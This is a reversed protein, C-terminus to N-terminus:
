ATQRLPMSQVFGRLRRFIAGDQDICENIVDVTHRYAKLIRDIEPEKMAYSVGHESLILVGMQAMEQIFLSQLQQRTVYPHDHFRVQMLPAHGVLEIRDTLKKVGDRIKAGVEWLHSPVSKKELKKITALSAALSLTEGFFTGSYFAGQPPGICQMLEKKGVLASIPMGNGLAKGFCALDPTVRFFQQAGGLSYRFGTKIEDFILVINHKSCFERLFKLYTEDDTPEVIIAATKDVDMWDLCHHELRVSLSRIADPIGASQDDRVSASWDAWGHYGGVYVQDVGTYTRAIRIAATTVDTGTKGFRVMEACPILSSLKEALECELKTSLSFSMGASIQRRVAYDVDPDRYGLIVPLLASALDVYDHGDVDFVRAGDGHSLYLPAAGQPLFAVSKSLTQAGLPITKSARAYLSDSRGFERPPLSEGALGQYFRENRIGDKNIERIWETRNLINLIDTCSPPTIKGWRMAVEQCFLYDRETDLVWREKDMGPFPCILSESPFRDRNRIIYQTVCDRDTERTAEQWAAELARFTFCETDLGDPWTPPWNNSCYDAGTMQRLQIVQDVVNPDLFPCDCTLRLVVDAEYMKACQYFRDLVDTESGRFCIVNKGLCWGEIADDADLDSTAIIVEDVLRAARLANVVWDLVPRGNLPKLVKGPFRTSGMRAQAIAITRM